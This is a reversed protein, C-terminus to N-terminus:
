PESRRVIPTLSDRVERLTRLEAEMVVRRPGVHRQSLVREVYAIQSEVYMLENDVGGLFSM